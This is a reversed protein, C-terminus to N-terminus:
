AAVPSRRGRAAKKQGKRAPRLAKGGAPSVSLQLDLYKMVQLVTALEPNGERSLSKYLAPRKLGTAKAIATMGAARAVVGLADAIESADGSQVADALYAFRAKDSEPYVAPDFPRTKLAM